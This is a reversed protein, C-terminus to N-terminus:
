PARWWVPRKRSTSASPPMTNNSAGFFMRTLIGIIPLNRRQERTVVYDGLLEADSKKEWAGYSDQARLLRVLTQLFPTALASADALTADVVSEALEAM